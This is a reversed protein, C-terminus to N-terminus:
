RVTATMPQWDEPFLLLDLRVSQQLTSKQVNQKPGLEVHHILGTAAALSSMSNPRRAVVFAVYQDEINFSSVRLLPTLLPHCEFLRCRQKSQGNCIHKENVHPSSVNAPVSGTVITQELYYEFDIQLQKVLLRALFQQKHQPVEVVSSSAEFSEFLGELTVDVLNPGFHVLRILICAALDGVEKAEFVAHKWMLVVLFVLEVLLAESQFGPKCDPAFVAQEQGSM